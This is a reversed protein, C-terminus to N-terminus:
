QSHPCPLGKDTPVFMSWQHDPWQPFIKVSLSQCDSRVNVQQQWQPWQRSYYGSTDFFHYLKVVVIFSLAISLLLRTLYSNAKELTALPALMIAFFASYVPLGHRTGGSMGVSALVVIISYVLIPVICFLLLGYLDGQSVRYRVLFAFSILLIIVFFLGIGYRISFPIMVEKLGPLVNALQGFNFRGTANGSAFHSAFSKVQILFAASGGLALVFTSICRQQFFRLLFFPFFVIGAGTFFSLLVYPITFRPIKDSNLVFFTGTALWYHASTTTLWVEPTSFILPSVAVLAAFIGPYVIRGYSSFVVFVTLIQLLFSAYTTVHAAYQLPFLYAAIQVVINNFLSLYGLQPSLISSGLNNSLATVLFVRGEEAWIRPYILYFPNRILTLITSILLLSIWRAPSMKQLKTM